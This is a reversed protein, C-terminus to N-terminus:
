RSLRYDYKIAAPLNKQMAKDIADNSMWAPFDITVDHLAVTSTTKDVKYNELGAGLDANPVCSGPTNENIRSCMQEDTIDPPTRHEDSVSGGMPRALAIRDAKPQYKKTLEVVVLPTAYLATTLVTVAAGATLVVRLGIKSLM